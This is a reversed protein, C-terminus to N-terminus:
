GRGVATLKEFAEADRELECTRIDVFCRKGAFRWRSSCFSKCELFGTGDRMAKRIRQDDAAILDGM